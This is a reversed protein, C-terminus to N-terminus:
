GCAGPFIDGAKGNFHGSQKLKEEDEFEGAKGCDKQYQKVHDNEAFVPQINWYYTNVLPALGILSVAAIASIITFAKNTNM